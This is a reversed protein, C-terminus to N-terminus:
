SKIFVNFKIYVIVSWNILTKNSNIRGTNNKEIVIVYKEM